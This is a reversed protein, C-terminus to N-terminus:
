TRALLATEPRQHRHQFRLFTGLLHVIAATKFTSVSHQDLTCARTASSRAYGRELVGKKMSCRELTSLRFTHRGAYPLHTRGAQSSQEWFLHPHGRHVRSSADVFEDARNSSVAPPHSLQALALMMPPFRLARLFLRWYLRENRTYAGNLVQWRVCLVQDYRHLSPAVVAALAPRPPLTHHHPSSRLNPSDSALLLVLAHDPNFALVLALSLCAHSSLRPSREALASLRRRATHRAAVLDHRARLPAYHGARPFCSRPRTGGESYGSDERWVM